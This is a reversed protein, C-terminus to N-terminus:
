ATRLFITNILKGSSGYILEHYAGAFKYIESTTKAKLGEANEKIAREKVVRKEPQPIMEGKTFRFSRGVLRNNKYSEYIVQYSIGYTKAYFKATGSDLINGDTDIRNYTYIPRSM